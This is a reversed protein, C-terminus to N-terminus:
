NEDSPDKLVLHKDLQMCSFKLRNAGQEYRCQMYFDRMYTTVNNNEVKEIFITNNLNPMPVYGPFLQDSDKKNSDDVIQSPMILICIYGVITVILLLSIIFLLIYDMMQKYCSIKQDQNNSDNSNDDLETKSSLNFKNMYDRGVPDIDIEQQDTELSIQSNSQNYQKNRLIDDINNSSNHHQSHQQSIVPEIEMQEEKEEIAISVRRNIRKNKSKEPPDKKNNNISTNNNNNTDKEINQLNNKDVITARTLFM